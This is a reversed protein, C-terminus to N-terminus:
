KKFKRVEKVAELTKDVPIALKSDGVKLIIINPDDTSRVYMKEEDPLNVEVELYKKM